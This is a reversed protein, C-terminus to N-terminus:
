AISKRIRRKLKHIKDRISALQLYDKKQIAAARELKLARIQTKLESKNAGVVEHHAHSEVGLVKCLLPLLQEKHMTSHGKLAENEIGDAIHRLQVATMKSLQEYTYEM